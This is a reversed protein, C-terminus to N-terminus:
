IRLLSDKLPPELAEKGLWISLIADYIAKGRVKEKILVDNIYISTGKKPIWDIDVKDGKDLTGLKVMISEIEEQEKKIFEQSTENTNLRIGKRLSEIYDSALLTELIFLRLRRGGLMAKATDARSTKQPLYLGVAYVEKGGVSRVGAGNLILEEGDVKSTGRFNFGSISLDQVEDPEVSLWKKLKDWGSINELSM